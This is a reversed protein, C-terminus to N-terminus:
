LECVLSLSIANRTWRSPLGAHDVLKAVEVRAAVVGGFLGLLLDHAERGVGVDRELPQGDILQSCTAVM